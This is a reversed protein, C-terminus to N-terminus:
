AAIGHVTDPNVKPQDAPYLTVVFPNNRQWELVTAGNAIGRATCGLVDLEYRAHPKDLVYGDSSPRARWKLLVDIRKTERNYSASHIQGVYNQRGSFFIEFQGTEYHWLLDEWDSPNM